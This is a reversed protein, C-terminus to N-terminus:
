VGEVTPQSDQVTGDLTPEGEIYGLLVLFRDAEVREAGGAQREGRPRAGCSSHSGGAWPSGVRGSRGRTAPALSGFSARTPPTRRAAWPSVAM